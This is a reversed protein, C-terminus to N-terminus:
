AQLHQEIGKAHTSQWLLADNTSIMASAAVTTETVPVQKNYLMDPKYHLQEYHPPHQFFTVHDCRNALALVHAQHVQCHGSVRTRNTAGSCHQSSEQSGLVDVVGATVTAPV